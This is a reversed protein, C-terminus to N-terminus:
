TSSLGDKVGNFFSKEREREKEKERKRKLKFDVKKFSKKGGFKEDSMFFTKKQKRYSDSTHDLASNDRFTQKAPCLHLKQTYRLEFHFVRFTRGNSYILPM